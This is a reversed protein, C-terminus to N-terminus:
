EETGEELAAEEAAKRALRKAKREKAAVTKNTVFTKTRSAKRSKRSPTDKKTPYAIYTPM